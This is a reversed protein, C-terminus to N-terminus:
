FGALFSLSVMGIAIMAIILAYVIRVWRKRYKPM